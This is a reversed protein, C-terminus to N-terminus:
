VTEKLYWFTDDPYHRKYYGKEETQIFYLNDKSDKFGGIFWGNKTPSLYLYKNVNWDNSINYLRVMEYIGALSYVVSDMSFYDVLEKKTM